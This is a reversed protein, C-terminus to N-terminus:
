GARGARGAWMARLAVQACREQFQAGTDGHGRAVLEPIREPCDALIREALRRRCEESMAGLELARDVRGPRTSIMEGDEIESRGDGGQEQRPVGLAEDLMEVRNTTVVLFVGNASEIGSLCNLLCDFSLGGGEEGLVNKRGEFVADIDEILAVCPAHRIAGRWNEQMERNDMTALDFVCVPLDLDQAIARVLSTKGTGPKGHLLWGRRWPIGRARYWTESALWRRLETVLEDVAPPFAMKELAQGEAREPGIEERKWQLLRVNEPQFVTGPGTSARPHVPDANGFKRNGSGGYRIVCFRGDLGGTMANYEALAERIMGEADLTWRLLSITVTDGENVGNTTNAPMASLVVPRWGKWFVTPERGPKEFGVAQYRKAPRVFWNESAYTLLGFPSRRFHRFCYAALHESLPAHVKVRVIVLSMVKAGLVRLHGWGAALIAAVSLGGMLQTVEIMALVRQV